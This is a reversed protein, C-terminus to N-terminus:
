LPEFTAERQDYRGLLVPGFRVSWLDEDVEELGVWERRLVESLFLTNRQFRIRGRRDVQRVELHGPYSVQAVRGEYPRPSRAYLEAPPVQGIGEHPREHNYQQRFADFVM